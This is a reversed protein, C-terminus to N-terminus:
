EYALLAVPISRGCIGDWTPARDGYKQYHMNGYIDRTDGNIVMLKSSQGSDGVCAWLYDFKMRLIEQLEFVTIGDQSRVKPRADNIFFIIKDNTELVVSWSKLYGASLPKPESDKPYILQQKLNEVLEDRTKGLSFSASCADCDQDLRCREIELSTVREGIQCVKLLNATGRFVYAVQTLDVPQNSIRAIEPNGNRLNITLLLDSPGCAVFRTEDIVKRRPVLCNISSKVIDVDFMGFAALESNTTGHSGTWTFTKGGIKLTGKAPVYLERLKGNETVLAHRDNSPLQWVRGNDVLLNYFPVKPPILDDSLYFSGFNIGAVFRKDPLDFGVLPTPITSASLRFRVRTKDLEVWYLNTFRGGDLNLTEQSFSLGFSLKRTQSNLPELQAYNIKPDTGRTIIM